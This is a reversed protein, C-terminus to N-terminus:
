DTFIMENEAAVYFYTDGWAPDSMFGDLKFLGEIRPSQYQKVQKM